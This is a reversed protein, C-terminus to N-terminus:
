NKKPGVRRLLIKVGQRLDHNLESKSSPPFTEKYMKLASILMGENVFCSQLTRLYRIVRIELRKRLEINPEISSLHKRSDILNRLMRENDNSMNAGHVRREFGIGPVIVINGHMAVRYILHFDECATLSVDFGQEQKVYATRFIPSSAITFNDDILINRCEESTLTFHKNKYALLYPVLNPCSSFHDASRTGGTFNRYNVVCLASEPHAQLAKVQTEIKEPLMIDDADFFNVLEGTAYELGHNRPGACSGSNPQHIYIINTGYNKVIEATNDTSGDDVVIVELNKYSQSFVSDLTETIFESANYAAIIISVLPEDM